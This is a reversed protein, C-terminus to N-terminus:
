RGMGRKGREEGEEAARRREEVAERAGQVFPSEADTLLQRGSGSERGPIGMRGFMDDIIARIRRRAEARDRRSRPPVYQADPGHEMEVREQEEVDTPHYPAEDSTPVREVNPSESVRGDGERKPAPFLDFQESSLKRPM